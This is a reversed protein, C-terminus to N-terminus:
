KLCKTQSQERSAITLGRRTTDFRVHGLRAGMIMYVGVGMGMTYVTYYYM